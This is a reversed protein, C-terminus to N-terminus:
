SEYRFNLHTFLLTMVRGKLIQAIFHQKCCRYFHVNINILYLQWMQVVCMFLIDQKCNGLMNQDFWSFINHNIMSANSCFLSSIYNCTIEFSKILRQHYPISIKTWLKDIVYKFLCLFTYWKHECTRLKTDFLFYLFSLQHSWWTLLDNLYVCIIYYLPIM